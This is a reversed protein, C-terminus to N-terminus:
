FILYFNNELNNYLEREFFNERNAIKRNLSNSSSSSHKIIKSRDIADSYQCNEM